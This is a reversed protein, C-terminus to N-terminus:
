LLRDLDFVNLSRVGRGFGIGDGANLSDRGEGGRYLETTSRYLSVGNVKKLSLQKANAFVNIASEDLWNRLYGQWDGHIPPMSQPNISSISTGVGAVNVTQRIQSGQLGAPTNIASAAWGYGYITEFGSTSPGIGFSGESAHSGLVQRASDAGGTQGSLVGAMPSWTQYGQSNIQDIPSGGSAEGLVYVEDNGIDASANYFAKLDGRHGLLLRFPGFNEFHRVTGDPRTQGGFTTAQGHHGFLDLAAGNSWKGPPGHWGEKACVTAPDQGNVLLNAAHIRSTDALNFMYLHGAWPLCAMNNFTENEINYPTAAIGSVSSLPHWTTGDTLSYNSGGGGADTSNVNSKSNDIHHQPSNSEFATGSGQFAVEPNYKATGHTQRGSLDYFVGSVERPAHNFSFNVGNMDVQSGGIARMCMGGKSLASFSGIAILEDKNTNYNAVANMNLLEPLAGVSFGLPYFNVKSSSTCYYRSEFEGQGVYDVSSTPLLREEGSTHGTPLWETEGMSSAPFGGLHRMKIASNNNAVMCARTSYVDFRTQNGVGNVGSLDWRDTDMRGDTNTPANILVKSNDQALAGIGFRSIKTPGTFEVISNGDALVGPSRWSNALAALTWSIDAGGIKGLTLNTWAGNTAASGIGRFSVKSNDQVLTGPHSALADSSHKYNVMEAFSNNRVILGPRSYTPAFTSGGHNTTLSEGIGCWKGHLYHLNRDGDPYISSSKEILLNVGNMSCAYLFGNSSELDCTGAKANSFLSTNWGYVFNSNILHFGYEQNHSVSFQTLKVSSNTAKVGTENFHSQLRGTFFLESNHLDYGVRNCLSKIITTDVDATTSGNVVSTANRRQKGGLMASNKLRVGIDCNNTLRPFRGQGTTTDDFRLTSNNCDIGVGSAATDAPTRTATATKDYVRYAQIGGEVDVKSNDLYFGAYKTRAAGCNKILVESDTLKFGMDTAHVCTGATDDGTGGDVMLGNLKIKGHCNTISVADFFSGYVAAACQQSTATTTGKMYLAYAGQGITAVTDEDVTADEQQSYVDAATVRDNTAFTLGSVVYSTFATPVAISHNDAAFFGRTEYSNWQSNDYSSDGTRDSAANRILNQEATTLTLATAHAVSSTATSAVSAVAQITPTAGTMWTAANRNVIELVGDGETVVDRLDLSGLSGYTCIEVLLPYTLRKPIRSVIDSLNSYTNTAHNSTSSLVLTVGNMASAPAGALQMLVDTRDKLQQIPINDQEWNYFSSPDFMTVNPFSTGLSHGGGSASFSTFAM